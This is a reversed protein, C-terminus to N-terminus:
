SLEGVFLKVYAQTVIQSYRHNAHVQALVEIKDQACLSSEVIEKEAAKVYEPTDTYIAM